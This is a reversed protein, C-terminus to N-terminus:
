LKKTLLCFEHDWDQRFKRALGKRTIAQLQDCQFYRAFKELKKIGWPYWKSFDWGSKTVWILIFFAKGIFETVIVMEIKDNEKGIWLIRKGSLLSEFVQSTNTQLGDNQEHFFNILPVVEDKIVLIDKPLVPYLDLETM